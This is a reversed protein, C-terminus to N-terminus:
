GYSLLHCHQLQKIAVIVGSAPLYSLDVRVVALMILNKGFTYGDLSAGSKRLIRWFSSM